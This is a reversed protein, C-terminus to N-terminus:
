PLSELTELAQEAIARDRRGPSGFIALHAARATLVVDRVTFPFPPTHAQPLNGFAQASRRGSWATIDEGDLLVRGTEMRVLRLIAKFLTTKGSGNAGLVAVTEGAMLTFDVGNLAHTGDDYKYRLNRVEILATM